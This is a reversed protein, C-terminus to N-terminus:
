EEEKITPTIEETAPESNVQPTTKPAKSSTAAEWRGDSPQFELEYSMGAEAVLVAGSVKIHPYVRKQDGTYTFKSM